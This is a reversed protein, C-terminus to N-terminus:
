PVADPLTGKRHYRWYIYFIVGIFLAFVLIGLTARIGATVPKSIIYSPPSEPSIVSRTSEFVTINYMWNENRTGCHVYVKYRGTQQNRNANVLVITVNQADYRILVTESCENTCNNNNCSLQAILDESAGHLRSTLIQPDEESRTTATFVTLNGGEVVSLEVVTEGSAAGAFGMFLLFYNIIKFDFM